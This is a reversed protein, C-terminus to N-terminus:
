WVDGISDEVSGIGNRVGARALTAAVVPAQGASERSWKWGGEVNLRKSAAGMGSTLSRQGLHLCQKAILEQVLAACAQAYETDPLTHVVIDARELDPGVHAAEGTKLLVVPCRHEREEFIQTLKEVIWASGKQRHATEIHGRGDERIGSVSLTYVGTEADADVAFVRGDPRMVSAEDKAAKWASKDIVEWREDDAPWDGIGLREMWWEAAEFGGMATAERGIYGLSIGNVPRGVSPNVKAWTRQSAPDDGGIRTGRDNYVPREAVWELLALAPDGPLGRAPRRGRSRVKALQTSHKMGASGAYVVQGERRTAMTPLGAAMMLADLYMAEDMVLKGGTFGRGAGGKRTMFKLRAGGVERKSPARGEIVTPKTRLIIEESGRGEKLKFVRREFDPNMEIIQMMKLFHERSTEFLHASHIILKEGFLFLWALELAILVEGKGNQRSLIIAVEFCVLVRNADLALAVELSLRQWPDLAGGIERTAEEYLKVAQAGLSEEYPPCWMWTPVQAGVIAQEDATELAAYAARREAERRDLWALEAPSVRELEATTM